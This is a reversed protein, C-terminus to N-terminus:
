RHATHGLDDLEVAVLQRMVLLEGVAEVGVGADSRSCLDAVLGPSASARNPRANRASVVGRRNVRQPGPEDITSQDYVRLSTTRLHM